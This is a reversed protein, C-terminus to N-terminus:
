FFIGNKGWDIKGRDEIKMKGWKKGVMKVEIKERRGWKFSVMKKEEEEGSHSWRWDHSRIIFCVMCVIAVSLISPTAATNLINMFSHPCTYCILDFNNGLVIEDM